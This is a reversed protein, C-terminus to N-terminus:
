WGSVQMNENKKYKANQNHMLQNGVGYPYTQNHFLKDPYCASSKQPTYAFYFQPYRCNCSYIIM